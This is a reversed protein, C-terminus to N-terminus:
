PAASAHADPAPWNVSWASVREGDIEHEVLKAHTSTLYRGDLFNLHTFVSRLAAPTGVLVRHTVEDFLVALQPLDANRFYFPRVGSTGAVLITGVTQTTIGSSAATQTSRLELRGTIPLSPRMVFAGSGGESGQIHIDVGCRVEAGARTCEKWQKTFYGEPSSAFAAIDIPSAVKAAAALIALARERPERLENVLTAEVQERAVRDNLAQAAYARSFSWAGISWPSASVLKDTLVVVVPPPACHSRALVEAITEESIGGASLIQAAAVRDVALIEQLWGMAAPASLGDSRFASLASRNGEPLSSAASSCALMRLVGLSFYPDDSLLSRALWYPIATRLSGGDALTRREGYYAAWYGYDWWTAVITDSSSREGIAIFTDAWADNIQPRYAHANAVAARVSPYAIAMCAIGLLVPAFSRAGIRATLLSHVIGCQAGFAVALPAAMLMDFRPAGSALIAAGVLWPWLLVLLIVGHQKRLPARICLLLSAGLAVTAMSAIVVFSAEATWTYGLVVCALSLVFADRKTSKASLVLLPLLTWALPAYWSNVAIRSQLSREVGFLEAVLPFNSPWPLESPRARITPIGEAGIGIWRRVIHMGDDMLSLPSEGAGLIVVGVGGGIFFLSAAGGLRITERKAASGGPFWSRLSLLFLGALGSGITLYTFRWGGWLSSQAVLAVCALALGSFTLWLRDTAVAYLLLTVCAIPLVVNWVDNDAGVSRYLYALETGTLVAILFAALPGGVKLGVAFAIATGVLSVIVVSAYASSPLTVDAVLGLSRQVAAIFWVHLSRASVMERGLPAHAMEDRCVGAVNADCQTGSDILNRARRLWFYSDYDGLYVHGSGDATEFRYAARIREAHATVRAAFDDPHTAIWEDVSAERGPSPRTSGTTDAALETLIQARVDATAQVEVDGLGLPALRVYGVIVLAIALLTSAIIRHV